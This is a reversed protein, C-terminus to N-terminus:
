QSRPRTRAFDFEWARCHSPLWVDPALAAKRNGCHQARLMTHHAGSLLDCVQVLDHEDSAIERVAVLGTRAVGNPASTADYRAHLGHLFDDQHLRQKADITINLGPHLVIRSCRLAVDIALQVFHNYALHPRGRFARLDVASAEFRAARFEWGDVARIKRAVERYVRARLDSQKTWHIENTFHHATRAEGVARLLAAPDSTLLVGVIFYPQRQHKDGGNVRSRGAEDVYVYTTPL